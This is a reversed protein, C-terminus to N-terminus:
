ALQNDSVDGYQSCTIGELPLMYVLKNSLFDTRTVYIVMTSCCLMNTYPLVDDVFMTHNQGVCVDAHM